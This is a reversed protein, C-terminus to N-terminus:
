VLPKVTPLMCKSWGSRAKQMLGNNLVLVRLKAIDNAKLEITQGCALFKSCYCTLKDVNKNKINESLDSFYFVWFPLTCRAYQLIIFVNLPIYIVCIGTAIIDGPSQYDVFGYPTVLPWHILQWDGNPESPLCVMVSFLSLRNLIKNTILYINPLIHCCMICVRVCKSSVYMNGPNLLFRGCKNATLCGAVYIRSYM